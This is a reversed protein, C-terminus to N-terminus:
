SAQHKASTLARSAYSLVVQSADLAFRADIHNVPFDGAQEGISTVHRGHNLYGAVFAKVLRDVAGRTPEPLAEFISKPAGPLAEFAGKLKAFVGADDGLDYSKKAEALQNLTKAWTDAEPSLPAEVELHIFANVRLPQLVKSYWDSRAISILHENQRPPMHLFTWEGPAIDGAVRHDTDNPEWRVRVVGDWWLTLGVEAQPGLRDNIYDLARRSIPVELECQDTHWAARAGILRGEALIEQDALVRVRVNHLETEIRETPTRLELRFILRPEVRGRGSVGLVTVDAWSRTGIILSGTPM